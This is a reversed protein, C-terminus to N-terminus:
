QDPGCTPLGGRSDTRRLHNVLAGLPAVWQPENRDRGNVSVLGDPREGQSWFLPMDPADSELAISEQPIISVIERLKKNQPWTLAGGIGIRFGLAIFRQAQQLSGMFAHIIGGAPLPCSRLRKAVEDYLRVCHIVVPLRYTRALALQADFLAWQAPLTTSYRKDVGCEGLGAFLADDSSVALMAALADLDNDVGTVRHQAMFCPHLGLQYSFGYRRAVAIVREWRRRTTAALTCHHVGAARARAVVADRDRDFIPFDLHCHHDVWM